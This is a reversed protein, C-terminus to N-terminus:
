TDQTYFAGQEKFQHYLFMARDNIRNDMRIWFLPFVPLFIINVWTTFSTKLNARFEEKNKNNILIFSLDFSATAYSPIIFLTLTSAINLATSSDKNIAGNLVLTYDPIKKFKGIPQYGKILKGEKWPNLLGALCNLGMKENSVIDKTDIDGDCYQKFDGVKIGITPKTRPKKNKVEPIDVHNFNMCGSVLLVFLLLSCSKKM